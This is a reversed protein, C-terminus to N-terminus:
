VTNFLAPRPSAETGYAFADPLSKGSTSKLFLVTILFKLQKIASRNVPSWDSIWKKDTFVYRLCLETDAFLEYPMTNTGVKMSCWLDVVVGVWMAGYHPISHDKCYTLRFSQYHGPGRYHRIGKNRSCCVTRYKLYPCSIRLLTKKGRVRLALRQVKNMTLM